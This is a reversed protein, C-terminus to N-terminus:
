QPFLDEEEEEGELRGRWMPALSERRANRKKERLVIVLGSVVGVGSFMVVVVILALPIGGNLHTPVCQCSHHSDFLYGTSCSLWKPCICSCKSPVWVRGSLECKSRALPNQCLCRCQNPLFIQDPASCNQASIHCGCSCSIDERVQQKSCQTHWAGSVFITVYKNVLFEGGSSFSSSVTMVEVSIMKSELPFCSLGPSAQCSGACRAVTIHSPQVQMAGLPIDLPVVTERPQCSHLTHLAFAEKQHDLSCQQGGALGALTALTLLSSLFLTGLSDLWWQQSGGM